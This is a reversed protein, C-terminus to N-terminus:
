SLLGVLCRSFLCVVFDFFGLDSFKSTWGRGILGSGARLSLGFDARSGKEGLQQILFLLLCGSEFM